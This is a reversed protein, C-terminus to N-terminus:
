ALLRRTQQELVTSASRLPLLLLLFPVPPQCSWPLSAVSKHRHLIRSIFPLRPPCVPPPESLPSLIPHLGPSIWICSKSSGPQIFHFIPFIVKLQRLIMMMPAAERQPAGFEFCFIVIRVASGSNLGDSIGCLGPEYSGRHVSEVATTQPAKGGSRLVKQHIAKEECRRNLISVPHSM